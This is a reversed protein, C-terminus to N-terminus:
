ILMSVSMFVILEYLQSTPPPHALHLLGTLKVEAQLPFTSSM